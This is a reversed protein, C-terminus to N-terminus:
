LVYNSPPHILNTSFSIWCKSLLHPLFSHNFNCMWHDFWVLLSFLSSKMNHLGLVEWFGALEV